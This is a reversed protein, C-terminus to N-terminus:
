RRRDDIIVKRLMEWSRDVKEKEEQERKREEEPTTVSFYIKEKRGGPKEIEKVGVGEIIEQTREKAGPVREGIRSEERDEESETSGDMVFSFLSLSLVLFHFFSILCIRRVKKSAM